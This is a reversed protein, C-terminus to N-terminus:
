HITLFLTVNQTQRILKFITAVQMPKEPLDQSRGKMWPSDKGNMWVSYNIATELIGWLSLSSRIPM